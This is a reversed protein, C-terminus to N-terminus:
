SPVSRNRIREAQERDLYRGTRSPVIGWLEDAHRGCVEYHRRDEPKEDPWSNRVDFAQTAVRKCRKVCCVSM